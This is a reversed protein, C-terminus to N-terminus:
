LHRTEAPPSEWKDHRGDYFRVPAAALEGPDADLCAVNVSVFDGGLVDLHGRGFSRVGCHKCFLNHMSKSGFQYDTLADEGALLRFQAPRALTGWYRTKACISCNCKGTGANLDIDAEYRVAGCHCGGRYTKLTM